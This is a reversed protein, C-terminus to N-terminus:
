KCQVHLRLQCACHRMYQSLCCQIGTELFLPRLQKLVTLCTTVMELSAQHTESTTNKTPNSRHESLGVLLHLLIAYPYALTHMCNYSCATCM